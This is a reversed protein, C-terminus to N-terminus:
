TELLDVCQFSNSLFIIEKMLKPTFHYKAHEFDMGYVDYIEVEKLLGIFISGKVNLLLDKM